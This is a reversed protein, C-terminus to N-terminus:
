TKSNVVKIADFLAHLQFPKGLMHGRIRRIFGEIKPDGQHGTMFIFRQCLQPSIREVAAYFMDGPFNPMVMDCLVINYDSTMIKKLGEAGNAVITVVYDETQLAEKLLSALINDDELILIRRTNAVESDESIEYITEAMLANRRHISHNNNM